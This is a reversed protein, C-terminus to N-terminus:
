RMEEISQCMHHTIICIFLNQNINIAMKTLGNDSSLVKKQMDKLSAFGGFRIVGLTRAPIDKFSILSDNPAPLSNRDYKSPVMFSFNLDSKDVNYESLVPATM